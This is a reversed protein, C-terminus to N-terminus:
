HTCLASLVLDAQVGDIEFVMVGTGEWRSVGIVVEMRGDGNLDGIFELNYTLPFHNIIEETYYASVLEVTVVESGIVKRMLVVSYDRPGVNHGTPEAYRTGNIFVEDTGDGELDVKWIRDILPIPMSPAQEIQWGTIAKLYVELDTSLEVPIRPLIDWEGSVGVASQYAVAPDVTIFHEDCTRAYNLEQGTVWGQSDFATYLKFNSGAALDGAIEGASVWSGNQSGGVLLFSVPGGEVRAIIAAPQSLMSLTSEPTPTLTPTPTFPDTPFPTSTSTIAIEPTTTPPLEVQNAIETPATTPTIPASCGAAALILLITSIRKLQFIGKTQM